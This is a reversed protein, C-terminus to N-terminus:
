LTVAQRNHDQALGLLNGRFDRDITGGALQRFGLARKRLNKGLTQVNLELHHGMARRSFPLIALSCPPSSRIHLDLCLSPVAIYSTGRERTRRLRTLAMEFQLRTKRFVWNM